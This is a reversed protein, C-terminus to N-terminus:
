GGVASRHHRLRIEGGPESPPELAVIDIRM